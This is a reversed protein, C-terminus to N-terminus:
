DELPLPYLPVARSEIGAVRRLVHERAEAEHATTGYYRWETEKFGNVDAGRVERRWAVPQAQAIQRLFGVLRQSESDTITGAALLDALAILDTRKM